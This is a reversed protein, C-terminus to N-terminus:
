LEDDDTMVGENGAEETFIPKEEPPDRTHRMTNSQVEEDLAGKGENASWTQPSLTAAKNTYDRDNDTDDETVDQDSDEPTDMTKLRDYERKENLSNGELISGRSLESIQCGGEIKRKGLRSATATHITSTSRANRMKVAQQADLRASALLRQQDRIKLKKINLLERFKQLLSLEHDKKAKIFSELQHSLMEMKRSQEDYKSTLDRVESELRMSRELATGAWRFIDLEQSEDRRFVVEGLNQTIGSIDNRFIISLQGGTITGLVELKELVSAEITHARKQLLTSKLVDEWQYDSLQNRKDRLKSIRSQRM